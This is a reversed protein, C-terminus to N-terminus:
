RAVRTPTSACPSSGSPSPRSTTCSTAGSRPISSGRSSCSARRRPPGPRWCWTARRDRRPARRRRRDVGRRHGQREGGPDEVGDIRPAARGERDDARATALAVPDGKAHIPCGFYRASAATTAPRAATTPSRTARRHPRPLPPVGTARRRGHHRRRLVDARRTADPLARARAAFPNAGAEGAVGILREAEAYYPELDDYGIPWDALDAGEMPGLESLVRFDDERFRPVKGDAHTGGGGVTAPLNNVEGVHIREGDAPSVRFTRPELWPDPGLFHRSWYKIEDNSFEYLLESPKETNVLYNKGARLHAGVLGAATLSMPPPPAEPGSGVIIADFDRSM